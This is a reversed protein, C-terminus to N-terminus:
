LIIQVLIKIKVNQSLFQKIRKLSTKNLSTIIQINKVFNSLFNAVLIIGGGFYNENIYQTSLNSSKNATGSTNVNIHGDIIPDGLILIKKDIKKFNNIKNKLKELNLKQIFKKAKNDLYLFKNNIINSSSYLETNTFFVKGNNKVANIEEKLNKNKNVLNKYDRGKFYLDPKFKNINTVATNEKSEVVKDFYKLSKLVEIRSQIDFIPKGPSKNVYRDVTVSAILKDCNMKAEKFYKIHGVHLVDFVGHVM